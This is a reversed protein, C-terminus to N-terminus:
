RAQLFDLARKNFEKLEETIADRSGHTPGANQWMEFLRQGELALVLALDSGDEQLRELVDLVIAQLFSYTNSINRMQLRFRVWRDYQTRNQLGADCWPCGEGQCAECTHLTDRAEDSGM